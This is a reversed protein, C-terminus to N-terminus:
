LCVELFGDQETRSATSACTPSSMRSFCRLPQRAPPRFPHIAQPYGYDLAEDLLEYILIFNKRVTDESLTGCYDKFIRSIRHLMELM